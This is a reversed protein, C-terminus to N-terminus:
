SEESATCTSAKAGGNVVDLMPRGGNVVDLMGCRARARIMRVGRFVSAGFVSMANGGGTPGTDIPPAGSLGADAGVGAGTETELAFYGEV